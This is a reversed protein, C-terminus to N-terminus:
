VSEVDSADIRVSVGQRLLDVSIVLMHRDEKKVLIGTAGALPGKTVRVQQGEKLYPYSDVAEGNEVLKKLSEIQEDPVAEPREPVTGVFRVVSPTRLVRLKEEPDMKLHVFVYGPFLPFGVLKKRDKWRRLREVVPLFTEVRANILRERVKFEHRSKVHIAFWQGPNEM